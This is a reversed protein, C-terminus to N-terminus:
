TLLRWLAAMVGALVFLSEVKFEMRIGAPMKGKEFTLVILLMLLPCIVLIYGFSSVWHMASLALSFGAGVGLLVKLMLISRKEGLLIAITERGVLRDGQIDLLDFFATRSFVFGVAWAFVFVIEMTLSRNLSLGPLLATVVGWALAILITKSGPFDKIKEFGIRNSLNAPIIKLNYSLGLISMALLIIFSGTGAMGAAVLGACGSVITIMSLLTKKKNYFGARDPDNYRSSDTGTLHNLTHMSLVYLFATLVHPLCNDLGMLTACAFCLGGAGLGVYINTLLLARLIKRVGRVIGAERKVPLKEITRYVRKIIWNPTSAGATIGITNMSSLSALDLQAETEIHYSPKGTQKAIQALRQTNGSNKGGVVVVADVNESLQKVEDQRKETSDCITTFFKYDPHKEDVWHKVNEYFGTNQTTQAVVIAKDFVPLAKIEAMNCVVHGKEGTYGMLGVVEAHDRDGVIIASYGKEEHVRIITQVRIVRPCTADVVTFGADALAIKADPPVGHARILVTGGGKKPIHDLVKIGKEEFLELVQPNHILPGYTYIPEQYIGPADLAMEVARRVGMCFGATNAIEIKM